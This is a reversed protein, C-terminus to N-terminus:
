RLADLKEEGDLQPEILTLGYRRMFFALIAPWYRGGMLPDVKVLGERELIPVAARWEAVTQSLRRAIEVESPFLGRARLDRTVM